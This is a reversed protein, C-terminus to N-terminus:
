GKEDLKAIIEKLMANQEEFMTKLEQLLYQAQKDNASQVDNQASQARNELLNQYGLILSFASILFEMQNQPKQNPQYM